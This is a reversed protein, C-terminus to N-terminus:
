LASDTSMKRKAEVSSKSTSDEKRGLTDGSYQTSTSSGSRRLRFCCRFVERFSKRFDSSAISYVFLNAIFNLVEILNAVHVFVYFRRRGYIASDARLLITVFAQPLTCVLFVASASALLVLLRTQERMTKKEARTRPSLGERKKLFARHSRIILVNLVVVVAIPVFRTVIEKFIPYVHPYFVEDRVEENWSWTYLTENTAADVYPTVTTEYAHPLSLVFCSAFIAVLTASTARASLPRAFRLPHCVRLYRDVTLALLIFNSACVFLRFTFFFLHSYYWLAAYSQGVLRSRVLGYGTFAIVNVLLDVVAMWRIYTFSPQRMRRSLWLVAINASNAPVGVVFAAFMAVTYIWLTVAQWPLVDSPPATTTMAVDIPATTNLTEM